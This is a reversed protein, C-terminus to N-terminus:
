MGPRGLIFSERRSPKATFTTHQRRKTSASRKLSRARNPTRLPTARPPDGRTDAAEGERNAAPSQESSAKNKRSFSNVTAADAHNESDVRVPKAGVEEGRLVGLRTFTDELDRRAADTNNDNIVYAHIESSHPGGVLLHTHYADMSMSLLVNHNGGASRRSVMEQLPLLPGTVQAGTLTSFIRVTSDIMAYIYDSELFPLIPTMHYRNDGLQHEPGVEEVPVEVFDGQELHRLLLLLLLFM